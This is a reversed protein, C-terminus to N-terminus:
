MLKKAKEVMRKFFSRSDAENHFHWSVKPYIRNWTIDLDGHQELEFAIASTFGLCEEPDSFYSDSEKCRSLWHVIEHAVVFFHDSFFAGDEFLSSNLKMTQEDTEAHKDEMPVIVIQLENLRDPSVEFQNFLEMLVPSNRIKKKVLEGIVATSLSMNKGRVRVPYRDESM